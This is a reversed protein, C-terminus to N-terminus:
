PLDNNIIATNEGKIMYEYNTFTKNIATFFARSCGEEMFDHLEIIVMKTKPLWSEYNDLFVKKESTEIDLKLIDIRDLSYKDMINKISIAKVNGEGKTEEVIMGWKGRDMKDSVNLNTETNWLGCNECSVGPYSAVNKKLMEFNEKDPEISIIKADPFKNKMLVTFLGINAGGDIIVKPDKIFHLDYENYLFIQFFTPTDSTGNRLSITTKINPVKINDLNGTKFNVFLRLGSVKGFLSTLRYLLKLNEKM